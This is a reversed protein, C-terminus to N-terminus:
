RLSWQEFELPHVLRVVPEGSARHVWGRVVVEQGLLAPLALGAASFAPLSDKRIMVKVGGTLAVVWLHEKETVGTVEGRMRRFTNQYDARDAAAVIQYQPLQWIGRGAQRAEQEAQHYSELRTLNPPKISLHVLGQRLLQENVSDRDQFLLHALLRKYRDQREVGWQLYISKGEVLQKLYRKAAKGGTQGPRGRHAIEPANIGILRVRRGDTLTVTDGDHVSKVRYLAPEVGLQRKKVEAATAPPRDGFSTVEGEGRWQYVTVAAVSLSLAGGLLLSALKLSSKVVRAM